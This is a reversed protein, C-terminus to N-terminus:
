SAPTNRPAAVPVTPRAGPIEKVYLDAKTYPIEIGAAAFAKYIASSLADIVRNREAPHELWVLLSLSLGSSGFAAVWVEPGPEAAVHPIGVGCRRLVDRVHDLDTGYAVDVDVKIRQRISRGGSENIIKSSGIAANPVTIEVDDTTLVRTSRIGIKIVQGRLNGELVIFDGVKYPADVIIFIGSFLNALTDKAAFGVAIGIIGASALWATLDIQWALFMFYLAAGVVACKVLMEFVPMTSPQVLSTAGARRSFAELVAHGARFAAAAWSLVIITEFVSGLTEREGPTLPLEDSAWGIGILVATLFIPRRISAIVLDDLKTDTRRALAELTHRIALEILKAAIIAIVVIAAARVAPVTWLELARDLFTSPDM